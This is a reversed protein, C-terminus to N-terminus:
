RFTVDGVYIDANQNTTSYNLPISTANPNKALYAAYNKRNHEMYFYTSVGVTVLGGVAFLGVNKNFAKGILASLGAGVLSIGGLQLLEKESYKGKKEKNNM